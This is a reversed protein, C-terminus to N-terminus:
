AEAVATVVGALLTTSFRSPRWDDVTEDRAIGRHLLRAASAPGRFALRGDPERRIRLLGGSAAREPSALLLAVDNADRRGAVLATEDFVVIDVIGPRGPTRASLRVPARHVFLISRLRAAVGAQALGPEMWGPAVLHTPGERALAASLSVSDFVPHSELTAGSLLAAALGPVLGRLDTPPLLSVIRDGPEIRAPALCLATAATLADGDRLVPRPTEEGTFTVLGAAEASGFAAPDGRHDLVVRDLGIVGDPVHPGFAAVFRLPFYRAAVRCLREAPRDAGLQGHTIVAQLQAAEAAQLLRAEDWTVPILCPLHGAQEIAMLALHSEAVGAMCLGVPSRPPLRLARLGATLRAAIERAAAFTWTIAPRGSWAPKDPQDVFAIRDPHRDATAALLAALGLPRAPARAPEPEAGPRLAGADRRAAQQAAM